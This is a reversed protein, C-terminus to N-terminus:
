PVDLMFRTVTVGGLVGFGNHVNNHVNIHEAFPNDDTRHQAQLTKYYLYEDASLQQVQVELYKTARAKDGQFRLSSKGPFSIKSFFSISGSTYLEDTFPEGLRLREDNGFEPESYSNVSYAPYNEIRAHASDLAYVVIRYYNKEGGKDAITLKLDGEKYYSDPSAPPSSDFSMSPVATEAPMKVTAEIPKFKFYSAQVKYTKGAEPVFGKTAEYYGQMESPQYEGHYTGTHQYVEVVQGVENLLKVDADAVGALTAESSMVSQSRGVFLQSFKNVQYNEVTPAANMLMLRLSLQPTHAPLDVDQELECGFM